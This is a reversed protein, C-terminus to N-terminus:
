KGAILYHPIPRVVSGSQVRFSKQQIDGAKNAERLYMRMRGESMHAIGAAQVVTLWGDPVKDIVLNKRKAIIEMLSREIQERTIPKNM